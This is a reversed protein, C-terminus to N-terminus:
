YRGKVKDMLWDWFWCREIRRWMDCYDGASVVLFEGLYGETNKQIIRCKLRFACARPKETRLATCIKPSCGGRPSYIVSACQLKWSPSFHTRAHIFRSTSERTAARTCIRALPTILRCRRTLACYHINTNPASEIKMNNKSHPTAPTTEQIPLHQIRINM